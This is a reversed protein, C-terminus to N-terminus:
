RLKERKPRVTIARSWGCGNCVKYRLGPLGGVEAGDREELGLAGCSGCKRGRERNAKQIARLGEESLAM